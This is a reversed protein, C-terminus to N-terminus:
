VFTSKPAVVYVQPNIWVPLHQLLLFNLIVNQFDFGQGIYRFYSPLNMLKEILM